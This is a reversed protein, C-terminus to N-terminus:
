SPKIAELYVTVPDNHTDYDFGYDSKGFKKRKVTVFGIDSLITKMYRPTYAYQHGWSFLRDITIEDWNGYRLKLHPTVHRKHRQSKTHGSNIIKNFSPWGIRMAGGPKLVRFCESLMKYGDDKKLHEIFHESYI